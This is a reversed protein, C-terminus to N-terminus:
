QQTRRRFRQRVGVVTFGMGLLLLTAPEPVPSGITLNDIGFHGSTDGRTGNLGFHITQIRESATIGFFGSLEPSSFAIPLPYSATSGNGFTVFASYLYPGGNFFDFGVGFVGREDGVSTSGFSLRFSGNCGGCYNPDDSGRAIVLNTDKFGTSQYLTERYVASMHADSHQDVENDNFIDGARYGAASYDDVVKAALVAEFAVRDWYRVPDAQVVGPTCLWVGIGWATARRSIALGAWTYAGLSGFTRVASMRTGGTNWM